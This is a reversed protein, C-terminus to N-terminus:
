HLATQFLKNQINLWTLWPTRNIFYSSLIFYSALDEALIIIAIHLLTNGDKDKEYVKNM